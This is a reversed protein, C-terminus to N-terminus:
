IMGGLDDELQALLMAHGHWLLPPLPEVIVHGPRMSGIGNNDCKLICCQHLSASPEGRCTRDTPLARLLVTFSLSTFPLSILFFLLPPSGERPDRHAM